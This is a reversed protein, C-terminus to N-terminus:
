APNPVALAQAVEVDRWAEIRARPSEVTTVERGDPDMLTWAVTFEAPAGSENAVRARAAVEAKGDGVTSTVYTGWHVVHLPDTKVLWTHRYIGAGEYFWGEFETADVRVVLVNRGGYRVVDTVDYHFSTYGSLHRGLYHGNLGAAG